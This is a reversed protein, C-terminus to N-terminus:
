DDDAGSLTRKNQPGRKKKSKKFAVTTGSKALKKGWETAGIKAEAHINIGKYDSIGGGNSSSQQDHHYAGLASDQANMAKVQEMRRISDQKAEQEAAQIADRRAQRLREREQRLEQRVTTRKVSVTSWASLGTSEQEQSETTGSGEHESTQTRAHVTVQEEEEGGNAMIRAEELSTPRPDDEVNATTADALAIRIRPLPVSRELTEQNDSSELLYAVDVVWRTEHSDNDVLLSGGGRGRRVAVVLGDLWLYHYQIRRQEEASAVKSGSWIQIPMDPELLDGFTIGELYTTTTQTESSSGPSRTSALGTTVTYYGEAEGILRRKGATRATDSDPAGSKNNNNDDDSARSKKRNGWEKMEQQKLKRKSADSSSNNTSSLAPNGHQPFLPVGSPASSVMPPMSSVAPGAPTAHDASATPFHGIDQIHSQLAVSQINQLYGQIKKAQQEEKARDQRKQQLALQVNEQHKKGNEHLLISQRDSGMWVNCVACYHRERNRWPENGGPHKKTRQGATGGMAFLEETEVTSM